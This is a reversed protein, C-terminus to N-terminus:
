SGARRGLVEALAVGAHWASEMRAAAGTWDGGCALPLDPHALAGVGLPDLPFAFRWRHAMVKSAPRPAKQLVEFFASVLANQVYETDRELHELSWDRSAHLVYREAESRGPKSPEHAVWSLPGDNVFIGGHATGLPAEFAATVAWTPAFAVGQIRALWPGEFAGLMRAAQPAPATVAVADYTGLSISEEDLIELGAATSRVKGVTTGLRLDLDASLGLAAQRMVPTGVWRAEVSAAPAKTRLEVADRVGLVPSWPEVWGAERWVRVEAQFAPHRATFYQAGHDYSPAGLRDRSAMRGGPGRGKDFVVVEGKWRRACTLGAMGAGIVALRRAMGCATM